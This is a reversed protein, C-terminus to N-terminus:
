TAKAASATSPSEAQLFEKVATTSAQRKLVPAPRDSGSFSAARGLRPTPSPSPGQPIDVLTTRRAETAPPSSSVSTAGSSPRRYPHFLSEDGSRSRDARSEKSKSSANTRIVTSSSTNRPPSTLGARGVGEIVSLLSPADGAASPSTEQVPLVETTESTISSSAKSWFDLGAGLSPMSMERRMMPLRPQTAIQTAPSSFAAPDPSWSTSVPPRPSASQNEPAKSANFSMDSFSIRLKPPAWLRNLSAAFDIVQQSTNSLSIAFPKKQEQNSKSDDRDIQDESQGTPETDLDM